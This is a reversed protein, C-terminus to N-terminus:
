NNLKKNVADEINKTATELLTTNKDYQSIGGLAVVPDKEYLKIDDLNEVLRELGNIAELQMSALSEPVSIKLMGTILNNTQNIIPDLKTLANVNVTNGDPSFQQLVDWVTYKVPNKPYVNNMALSYNKIAKVSNDKTIKIDSLAYVKRPASNQINEALSSSLKDVTAQDMSGNQTAASVTAFLDRSFQETKTLNKADSASGTTTGGTDGQAIRLREIVTSDPIGPTTEKKTPDLGYLSEEWDPIGDGDTDKNVLNGLTTSRYVLENAKDNGQNNFLLGNKLLFLAVLFIM